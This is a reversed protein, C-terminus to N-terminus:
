PDPMATSQPVPWLHPKSGSNSHSHRLALLQLELEVGLRAGEMWIGHHPGLFVFSLFSLLLLFIHHRHRKGKFSPPGKHSGWDVPYLLLSVIHSGLISWLFYHLKRRSKERPVQKQLGAEMSDLIGSWASTVLLHESLCRCSFDWSVALALGLNWGWNGGPQMWM